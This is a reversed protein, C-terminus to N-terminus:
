RNGSHQLPITKTSTAHEVSRQHMLFAVIYIFFAAFNECSKKDSQDITKCLFLIESLSTNFLYTKVFVFILFFM